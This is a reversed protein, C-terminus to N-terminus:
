LLLSTSRHGFNFVKRISNQRDKKLIINYLLLIRSRKAEKLQRIGSALHRHRSPLTALNKNTWVYWFPFFIGFSWLSYWIAMFYELNGYFIGFPCSVLM